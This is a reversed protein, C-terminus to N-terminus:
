LFGWHYLYTGTIANSFLIAFLLARNNLNKFRIAYYIFTAALIGIFAYNLISIFAFDNPIGFAVINFNINLTQIIAYVLILVIVLAISSCFLILSEAVKQQRRTQQKNFKSFVQFVIYSIFIVLSIILPAFFLIDFNQISKAMGIAGSTIFIGTAFKAPDFPAFEDVNPQTSPNALFAKLVSNGENTFSPTHGYAGAKVLYSNPLLNNLGKGNSPPTIPDFFGNYILVPSPMNLLDPSEPLRLTDRENNWVSCIEFDSKYFSLQYPQNGSSNSNQEYDSFSNAPIAENCTFCYYVGYDLNLNQSFSEILAALASENRNSFQYILLPIIEILEKRYLSQQVALKFDNTNFTFSGTAVISNDVSLTIPNAELSEITELYVSALEPYDQNCDPNNKCNEFVKQLSSRYNATNTTYYQKIDLIPSDLILSKIDNQFYNAYVQAIYTGYSIGMVNWSEYGLYNKLANLDNSVSISNFAAIDVGQETLDSQCDLTAEVRLSTAQKVDINKAFIEFFAKGLDPCLRPKSFGTGRIDVLIIDHKERIPHNLWYWGGEIISSGPGGALVVLPNAESSQSKLRVVALKIPESDPMEWNEPVNFYGWEMDKLLTSDINPYFPDTKEFQLIDQQAFVSYGLFSLMFLIIIRSIAFKHKVRKVFNNILYLTKINKLM